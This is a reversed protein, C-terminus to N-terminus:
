RSDDMERPTRCGLDSNGLWTVSGGELMTGLVAPVLGVAALVAQFGDIGPVRKEYSRTLGEIRLVATWDDGDPVPSEITATVPKSSGGEKPVFDFIRTIM